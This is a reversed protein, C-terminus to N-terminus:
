VSGIANRQVCSRSALGRTSATHWSCGRLWVFFFVVFFRVRLPLFFFFFVFFDVCRALPVVRLNRRHQRGNKTPVAAPLRQRHPRSATWHVAAVEAAMARRTGGGGDCRTSM